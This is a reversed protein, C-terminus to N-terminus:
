ELNRFRVVGELFSASHFSYDKTEGNKYTISVLEQQDNSYYNSAFDYKTWLKPLCLDVDKVDPDDELMPKMRVEFQEKNLGTPFIQVVKRAKYGEIRKTIDPHEKLTRDNDIRLVVFKGILSSLEINSNYAETYVITGDKLGVKELSNGTIIFRRLASLDVEVGNEIFIPKNNQRELEVVTAGEKPTGAFAKSVVDVGNGSTNLLYIVALLLVFALVFIWINM